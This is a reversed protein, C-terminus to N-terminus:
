LSGWRPLLHPLYSTRVSRKAIFQRRVVMGILGVWSGRKKKRKVLRREALM